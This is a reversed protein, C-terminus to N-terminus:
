GGEEVKRAPKEQSEVDCMMFMYHNTKGAAEAWRPRKKRMGHALGICVTERDPRAHKCKWWSKGPLSMRSLKALVACHLQVAKGM